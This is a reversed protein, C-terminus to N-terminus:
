LCEGAPAVELDCRLVADQTRSVRSDDSDVTVSLRIAPTSGNLCAAGAAPASIETGTSLSTSDARYVTVTAAYGPAPNAAMFGALETEYHTQCDDVGGYDFGLSKLYDAATVAQTEAETKRNSVDSAKVLTALLALVGVVVVSMIVLAIMIEVLTM